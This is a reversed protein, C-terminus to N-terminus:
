KVEIPAVAEGRRRLESITLQYADLARTITMGDDHGFVHVTVRAGKVTQEIKVDVSFQEPVTTNEM